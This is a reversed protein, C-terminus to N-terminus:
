YTSTMTPKPEGSVGSPLGSHHGGHGGHGGQGGGPTNTPIQPASMSPYGSVGSPAGSPHQHGGSMIPTHSPVPGDTPEGRGGGPSRAGPATPVPASGTPSPGQHASHDSPGSPVPGGPTFTSNGGMGPPSGSPISSPIPPISAGNPTGSPYSPFGSMSSNHGGKGGKGDIGRRAIDPVAVATAAGLVTFVVLLSAFRM